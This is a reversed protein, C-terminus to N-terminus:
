SGAPLEVVGGTVGAFADDAQYVAVSFAGDFQIVTQQSFTVAARVCGGGCGNDARAHVNAVLRTRPGM